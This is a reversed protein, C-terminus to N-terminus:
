TSLTVVLPITSSAPAIGVTEGVINIEGHSSVASYSQPSIILSVMFITILISNKM